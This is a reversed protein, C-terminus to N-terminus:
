KDGEYCGNIIETQRRAEDFSFPQKQQERVVRKAQKHYDEIFKQNADTAKINWSICNLAGDKDVAEMADPVGIVNCEPLYARIQQLAQQDEPIGLQPVLVLKGIQLYNIYVWSNDNLTEVDYKLSVVEFHKDLVQRFKKAMDADFQEYKTMLVRNGGLYHIVGDSHGYIEERDWPIFVIECEFADILMKQVDDRSKDKNEVFVKETMVIKNGCKVVNGGDIILDLDVVNDGWKLFDVNGVKKVNTIFKRNGADNLYNPFYKYSVFRNDGTQIPMYDRCWIDETYKLMRFDVNNDTLIQKLNKYLNPCEKPLYNSFYVTDTDIDALVDFKETNYTGKRKNTKGTNKNFWEKKPNFNGRQRVDFFCLKLSDDINNKMDTEGLSRYTEKPTFNGRNATKSLKPMCEGKSANLIADKCNLPGSVVNNNKDVISRILIGGFKTESYSSDFCIDIGNLHFFLEGAKYGDRAYTVKNWKEDWIDKQWYYFEIEAFYFEKEKCKICYNNFLDKAIEACKNQFKDKSLGDFSNAYKRKFEEM